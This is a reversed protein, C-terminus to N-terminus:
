QRFKLRFLLCWIGLENQKVRRAANTEIFCSNTSWDLKGTQEKGRRLQVEELLQLVDEHTVSEGENGLGPVELQLHPLNVEPM